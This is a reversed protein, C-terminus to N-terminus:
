RAAGGRPGHERRRDDRMKEMECYINAKIYGWYTKVRRPTTATREAIEKFTRGEFFRLVFVQRLVEEKGSSGSKRVARMFLDLHEMLTGTSEPKATPENWPEMLERGQGELRRRRRRAYDTLLHGFATRVYAFFHGRDRWKKATKKDLAQYLEGVLDTPSLTHGSRERRMFEGAMKRLEPYVLEFLENWADRNGDAVSDLLSTIDKRLESM